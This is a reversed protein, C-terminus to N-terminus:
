AHDAEEAFENMAQGFAIFQGADCHHLKRPNEEVGLHNASFPFDGNHWVWVDFHGSNDIAVVAKGVYGGMQPYWTAYGKRGDTMTIRTGATCMEATPEDM